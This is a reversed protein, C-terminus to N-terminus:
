RSRRPNSAVDLILTDKSYKNIQLRDISKRINKLEKENLIKDPITNIITDYNNNELYNNLKNFEIDIYGSKKLGLKKSKM